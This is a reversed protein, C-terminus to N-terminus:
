AREGERGKGPKGPTGQNRPRRTQLKPRDIRYGGKPAKIPEMSDGITPTDDTDTGTDIQPIQRM